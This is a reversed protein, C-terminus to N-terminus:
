PTEPSLTEFMPNEKVKKCHFTLLNVELYLILLNYLLNVPYNIQTGRQPLM